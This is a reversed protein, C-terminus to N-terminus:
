YFIGLYIGIKQLQNESARTESLFSIEKDLEKSLTLGFIKFGSDDPSSDLITMLDIVCSLIMEGDNRVFQSVLQDKFLFDLSNDSQFDNLRPNRSFGLSHMRWMKSNNAYDNKGNFFPKMQNKVEQFRAVQNCNYNAFNGIGNMESM